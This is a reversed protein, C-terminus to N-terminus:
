LVVCDSHAEGAVIVNTCWELVGGGTFTYPIAAVAVGIGTTAVVTAVSAGDRRLECGAVVVDLPTPIGNADTAVVELGAVGNWQNPGGLLGGPTTDNVTDFFCGGKYHRTPHAHASPAAVALIGVVLSTVLRKQM